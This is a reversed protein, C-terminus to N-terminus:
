SKPMKFPHDPDENCRLWHRVGYRMGSEAVGAKGCARELPPLTFQKLVRGKLDLEFGRGGVMMPLHCDEDEDCYEVCDQCTYAVGEQFAYCVDYIPPIVVKFSTVKFYGCKGNSSFRSVGKEAQRYDFDGTVYIGPMVVLGKRNVADFYRTEDNWLLDVGTKDPKIRKLYQPKLRRTEGETTFCDASWTDTEKSPCAAHAAAHLCTALLFLQLFHKM